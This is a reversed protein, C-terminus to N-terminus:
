GCGCVNLAQAVSSVVWVKGEWSQHWEVEDQTLQRRSPSKAGDKVELLYNIGEFGVLLDPVGQGLQHLHQVSCGHQRLAAVIATQNNDVRCVKRMGDGGSKYRQPRSQT